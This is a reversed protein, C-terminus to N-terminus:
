AAPDRRVYDRNSLPVSDADIGEFLEALSVGLVKALRALTRLSLNQRGDEIRWFYAPSVGMMGALEQQTVGLREGRLWAVRRGLARTLAETEISDEKDNVSM